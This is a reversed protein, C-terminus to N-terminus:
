RQMTFTQLAFSKGRPWRSVGVARTKTGEAAEVRGELITATVVTSGQKINFKGSFKCAPTVTISREGSVQYGKANSDNTAHSRCSGTVSYQIPTKGAKTFQVDCWLVSSPGSEQINNAFMSWGGAMDGESCGTSPTSSEPPSPAPTSSPQSAAKAAGAGGLSAVTVRPSLRAAVDAAEDASASNSGPMCSLLGTASSRIGTTCNLLAGLQVNGNPMVQISNNPAGPRIRLPVTGAVVDRIQFFGNPEYASLSWKALSAGTSELVITPTAASVISLNVPATGGTILLNPQTTAVTNVVHLKALPSTTGIGVNGSAAIDLSSTPAGPRIRFPLRSGGTIDRVFFNAENAGIDWTQATFGGGNTQEFRHAPTDTTRIHLDLVPAPTGLGVNGNSSLVFSDVPAGANLKFITRAATTDEVAFYNAGGSGSDNAIITWKNAPFGAQLSTDDFFIRLNNEKLILTNFGFNENNVCDLGICTSGQVILDDPIVQDARAPSACLLAAGLVTAIATSSQLERFAKM